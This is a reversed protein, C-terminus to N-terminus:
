RGNLPYNLLVEHVIKKAAGLNSEVWNKAGLKSESYYKEEKLNNFTRKLEEADKVSFGCNEKVSQVAEPFKSTNKLTGFIVPVQFGLPELINHLGKGFAGGVYALTAYQYLSSLMGINDIFLIRNGEFIDSESYRISNGEISEAWIRMPEPNLDHPAIIWLYDQNQNILPILLRMDEEWVSGLIMVNEKEVWKEIEPFKKPTLATENVRDFRTDGALIGNKYEISELLRISDLNQTFIWDIQFLIKRFFGESKFYLQEPRFSASFLVMPIGRKKLALIHHYWLDYKVFFVLSPNMIRVFEFATSKRDLPIYSIFDVHEQVKRTAIDYGSPSFFSVLVLVNPRKLKLEAIVPKAQEYEGLSAVHFWVLDGSNKSRFEKLKNLLGKRGKLFHNIKVSFIGLLPLVATILVIAIRYLLNM